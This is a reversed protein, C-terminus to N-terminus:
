GHLDLPRRGGRYLEERRAAEASERAVVADIEERSIGLEGILEEDLIQFSGSVIAGMALEPQWPVGLKRVLLVDLPAGFAKAVEWGVPLGGRPLALVAVNPPLKHGLLEKALLRGAETRDAFPLKIM